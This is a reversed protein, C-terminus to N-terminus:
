YAGPRQLVLTFTRALIRLDLYLSWNVIYYDALRMWEEYDDHAFDSFRWLGTIGPPVSTFKHIAVKTFNKASQPLLPRPGVLSIEGRLVNIFTPLEDLHTRRLLKGIRTVRPDTSGPQMTRFKILKFEKGGKGLRKSVFLIPGSTEVLIALCIWPAITAGLILVLMSIQIDLIRKVFKDSPNSTKRVFSALFILITIGLLTLFLVAVIQSYESLIWTFAFFTLTSISAILIAILRGIFVRIFTKSGVEIPLRPDENEPIYNPGHSISDSYKNM